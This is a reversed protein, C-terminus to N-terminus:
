HAPEFLEAFFNKLASWSRRDAQQNYAIGPIHFQDANPNTFAHVAGGYVNIQYNAKAEKMEQEFEAVATPPTFPDDAGQCVLVKAKIHDPSENRTRSLDGHFSIVGALPVGARALELVAAGGFCYGIAAVHNPDVYKQNLLADLGAQARRRMLNRDNHFPTSWEGAQKPDATTKGNGYMDIVFAVYGMQALEEARHKPYDTLGWWEPAILIGPRVDQSADDYALYGELVVPGDRYEVPQTRIKAGALPAIVLLLALAILYRHM